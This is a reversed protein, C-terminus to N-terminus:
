VAGFVSLLLYVVGALVVLSVAIVGVEVASWSRKASDPDQPKPKDSELFGPEAPEPARDLTQQPSGADDTPPVVGDLEDLYTELPDVFRLRTTGAAITDGSSLRRQELLATDNVTVPTEGSADQALRLGFGDGDRYVELAVQLGPLCILADDDDAIRGRDLDDPVSHKQGPASGEIVEFHASDVEEDPASDLLAEGLMLRAMTGTQGLSAAINLDPVLEVEISLDVIQLTAGWALRREAGATLPEGDLLTGNTSQEDRVQLSNASQIITLHHGSVVGFPLRIDCRSSRGITVREDDFEVIRPKNTRPPRITLRVPM